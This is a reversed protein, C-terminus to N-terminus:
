AAATLRMRALARHIIRSVQMQSVGVVDGIQAQTLDEEFRLRLVERTRPSLSASLDELLVRSEAREFGDDCCGLTDQLTQQDDDTGRFAQLSVASRGGRAQLAELIQEEDSQLESALEGVTPARDLEASLQTVARDVRLTLEQLARPPRVMWSRDRLHRKLEGHITPVAFTSFATGKSADFRDVAKVLALSAIQVLDETPESSHVYRRAMARALPLFREILADRAAGDGGDRLAFLRRDELRRADPSREGATMVHPQSSDGM